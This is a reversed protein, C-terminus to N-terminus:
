KPKGKEETPVSSPAYCVNCRVRSIPESDNATERAASSPTIGGLHFTALFCFHCSLSFLSSSSSSSSSSSCFYDIYYKYYFM